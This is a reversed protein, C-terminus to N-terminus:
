AELLRAGRGDLWWDITGMARVVRRTEGVRKLIGEGGVIGGGVTPAREGDRAAEWLWEQGLFSYRISEPFGSARLRVRVDIETTAHLVGQEDFLLAFGWGDAGTALSAVIYAGDDFETVMHGWTIERGGWGFPSDFFNRGPPFFHIEHAAFGELAKGLITGRMRYKQTLALAGGNRWPNLWQLAPRLPEGSFDAIAGESWRVGGPKWEFRFPNAARRDSGEFRVGADVCHTAVPGGYLDKEEAAHELMTGGRSTFLHRRERSSEYPAVGRLMRYTTGDADRWCGLFYSSTKVLGHIAADPLMAEATLDCEGLVTAGGFDGWLRRGPM